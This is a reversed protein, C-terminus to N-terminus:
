LNFSQDFHVKGGGAALSVVCRVTTWVNLRQVVRSRPLFDNKVQRLFAFAEM